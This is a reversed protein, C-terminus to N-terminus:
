ERMEILDMVIRSGNITTYELKVFGYNPHYYSKLYTRLMGKELDSKATGNTVKCSLNGFPTTIIEDKARLYEYNIQIKEKQNIWRPDLYFGGVQLNWGWKKVSEDLYQFPFPCLELIKYTYTRPPHMWLNMKNDIVGTGEDMCELNSAKTKKKFYECLTDKMKGKRDLYSYDFITQTYTTDFKEYIEFHDSVEIRIKDITSDHINNVPILHLPNEESYNETRIFKYKLGTRDEYYYDYILIRGLKYSINDKTYRHKNTDNRIVKESYIGDDLELEQSFSFLSHLISLTILTQKM